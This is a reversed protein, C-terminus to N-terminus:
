KLIKCAEYSGDSYFTRRILVGKSDSSVKMGNLDFFDVKCVRTKNVVPNIGEPIIRTLRMYDIDPVWESPNNLEITNMGQLLKIKYNCEALKTFSGSNLSSFTYTLQGNVNLSMGRSEGSFYGVSLLYDGGIESFVNKWVIGNGDQHGLFGVYEGGSAQTNSNFSATLNGSIEQYAPLWATEAEYLSQENRNGTITFVYTAHAPVTIQFSDKENGFFTCQHIADHINIIDKYGILSAQIYLKTNTDGLNCAAVAREKGHVEKIDKAFIYVGNYVKVLPASLGLTDQNIAILEKNKLLALSNDPIKTLDCGILLPSSLMCWMGFHTMEENPTLTRGIELMDMDNYHGGGAFASLYLNEKIISKVSNWSCNIDGTTRWSNAVNSAWTGPYAWRCINFEIDKRGTALIANHIATYREKEDLGLHAGGCYDVKIFDFNWDKFYLNCDQQDHGYLGIGMGWAAINGSGCSNDGADSYIGAKLGLSHIYDTLARMGSPFLTTNLEVNGTSEDRGNWYGDDINIYKYGADALGTSVMAQAQSRIVRENINLGFTNWTSWGMTPPVIANATLVTVATIVIVLCLRKM